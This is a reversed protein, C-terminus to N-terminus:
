IQKFAELARKRSANIDTIFEPYGLKTLEAKSCATTPSHIQQKNLDKLEPCYKRIFDGNPDFKSSQTLPNFIRFYPVADTGTSACWQWGGNNSAFDLDILHQSFFREGERWDILLNKTLFMATIMRLRNHMWGTQVLQRMAADIIPIGTQGSEWAHLDTKSHRWKICNYKKNYNAGMCIDPRFFIVHRYFDRWLLEDIWCMINQNNGPFIHGNAFIAAFFCQRISIAGVALYASLKSTVDLNPYDRQEKYHLLDNECFEKLLQQAAHSGKPWKKQIPTNIYKQINAPINLDNIVKKNQKQINKALPPPNKELILYAAKKFASFVSYPQQQKNLLTGPVILCQDDYAHIQIKNTKCLDTVMKDRRQENLEYEKNFFIAEVKNDKAFQMLVKPIDKFTPVNLVTLKINLDLLDKALELLNGLVFGIKNEGFSHQQWQQMTIFFIAEADSAESAAFLAPNDSVRLDNRFWMLHM